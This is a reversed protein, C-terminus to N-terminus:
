CECLPQSLCLDTASSKSGPTVATGLPVQTRSTWTRMCLPRTTTRWGADCLFPCACVCVCVCACVSLVHHSSIGIGTWESLTWQIQISHYLHCRYHTNLSFLVSNAQTSYSCHTNAPSSV